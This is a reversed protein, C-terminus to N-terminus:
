NDKLSAMGKGTTILKYLSNSIYNTWANSCIDYCEYQPILGKQTFDLQTQNGTKKIEFFIDNGNWESKDKTFNFHNELVHWVVRKGRVLETVKLKCFHFDKYQHIFEANLKDADGQIGESWWDRVRNIASFIEEPTEDVTISVTFNKDAM